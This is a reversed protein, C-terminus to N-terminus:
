LWGKASLVQDQVLKIVVLLHVVISLRRVRCLERVEAVILTM